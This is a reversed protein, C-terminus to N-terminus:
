STTRRRQKTTMLSLVRRQPLFRFLGFLMLLLSTSYCLEHADNITVEVFHGELEQNTKAGSNTTQESYYRTLDTSHSLRPMLSTALINFLIVLISFVMIALRASKETHPIGSKEGRLSTLVFLCGVMTSPFIMENGLLAFFVTAIFLITAIFLRIGNGNKM